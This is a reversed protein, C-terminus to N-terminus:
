YDHREEDYEGLTCDFETEIESIFNKLRTTNDALRAYENIRIFENNLLANVGSGTTGIPPVTVMDYIHAIEKGTETCTRLVRGRRQVTQRMNSDSAMLYIKDLKPVDVGEDFCKIAVLTQFYSNRFEELVRNRDQTASTYQSVRYAGLEYLSRSVVDVISEGSNTMEKGQGCYVVANDFDYLEPQIIMSKLKDIKCQAKKLLASRLIRIENIKDIDQEEKPASYLISLQKTFKKYQEFTDEDLYVKIPHYEYHALFGNEIAQDITYKYTEKGKTFYNLINQTQRPDHREPTASLGLRYKFLDGLASMHKNSLDHVEDVVIMANNSFKQIRPLVKQFFTDYVCVAISFPTGFAYEISLRNIDDTFNASSAVGGFLLPRYNAKELTEQWQVQLDIQPVVIMIVIPECIRHDIMYQITKIATFTKGTGTAMEYLHCYSNETFQKIAEEQYPYLKKEKTFGNEALLSKEIREIAEKISSSNRYKEFLKLKVAEPLEYSKVIDHTNTWIAEFNDELKTIGNLFKLGDSSIQVSLTEINKRYGNVTSNASGVASLSIGQRDKFLAVKEHYLEGDIRYAVRIQLINAAILNSILDLNRLAHEDEILTNDIIRNIDETLHKQAIEYGKRIVDLERSQLEISTILRIKGNNNLYPILGEALVDLAEVSFYGSARDYQKSCKLVPVFFSDVLDEISSSYTTELNLSDFGNDISCM